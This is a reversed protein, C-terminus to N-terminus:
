CILVFRVQENMPFTKPAQLIEQTTIHVEGMLKHSGDGNWNWCQLSLAVDKQDKTRLLRMPVTFKPWKPNCDDKIFTTRHVLTNEKYIVLFPDPKSLIGSKKFGEASFLFEVDEKIAGIEEAIVCLEGKNKSKPHHLTEVIKGSSVIQGLSCEVEGLFDHKDLATSKSDIDFIKFKLKQLNEFHYGIVIKKSFEPNLSNHIQETRGHEVWSQDVQQIYVVCIPDSKSILDKNM